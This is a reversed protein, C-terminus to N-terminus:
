VIFEDDHLTLLLLLRDHESFSIFVALVFWTMAVAVFVSIFTVHCHFMLFCLGDCLHSYISGILFVLDVVMHRTVTYFAILVPVVVVYGIALLIVYVVVTLIFDFILFYRGFYKQAAETYAESTKWYPTQYLYDNQMAPQQLPPM